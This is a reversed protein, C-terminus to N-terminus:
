TPIDHHQRPRAYKANRLRGRVLLSQDWQTEAVRLRYLRKVVDDYIMMNHAMLIM